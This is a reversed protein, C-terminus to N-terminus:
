VCSNRWRRDEGASAQTSSFAKKAFDLFWPPAHRRKPREDKQIVTSSKRVMTLKYHQQPTSIAAIDL